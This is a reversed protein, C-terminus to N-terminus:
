DAPQLNDLGAVILAAEGGLHDKVAQRYAAFYRAAWVPSQGDDQLLGGLWAMSPKLYQIDGLALASAICQTVQANAEEIQAPHDSKGLLSATIASTIFGQKEIFKALTDTYDASVPQMPPLPPLAALLSEVMRPAAWLENGLFYGPIRQVLAPLQNFISGGYALSVGESTAYDAM